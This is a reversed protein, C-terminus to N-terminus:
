TGGRNNDYCSVNSSCGAVFLILVFCLARSVHNEWCRNSCLYYATMLPVVSCSLIIPLICERRPPLLKFGTIDLITFTGTFMLGWKLCLYYFTETISWNTTNVTYKYRVGKLFLLQQSLCRPPVWPRSGSGSLGNIRCRFMHQPIKSIIFLYYFYVTWYRNHLVFVVTFLM